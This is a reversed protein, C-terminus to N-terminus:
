TGKLTQMYHQFTQEIGAELSIKSHWGFDNLLTIDVIKRRMGTPKSPDHVFDCNIGLVQAAIRYYENITYDRGIGVNLIPPMRDFNDVAYDIFDACDKSFMFERRVEGTGWIEIKKGPANQSQHLKKIISPLLHSKNDSFSDYIGYLNCPIATKYSMGKTSSLYSCMKMTAIKALAYGENTPELPGSLIDSEKLPVDRDKPYVCSSSLNLIRNIGQKYSEHVINKGMELNEFLFEYPQQINAQIGGVKGACHIVMDPKNLKLYLQVSEKDLLNLENRKPALLQHKEKLPSEIINRGVMGTSGTVLIKM